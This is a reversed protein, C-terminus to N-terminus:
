LGVLLGVKSEANHVNNDQGSLLFWLAKVMTKLRAWQKITVDSTKLVILVSMDTLVCQGLSDPQIEDLDATSPQLDEWPDNEVRVVGIM